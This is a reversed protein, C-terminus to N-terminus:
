EESGSSVAGAAGTNTGGSKSAVVQLRSITDQLHKKQRDIGDQVRSLNLEKDTYADEFASYNGTYTHLQLRHFRIIDTCVADLFNRDHSTLLVTTEQRAGGGSSGSGKSTSAVADIAAAATGTSNLYGM